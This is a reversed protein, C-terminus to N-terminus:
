IEFGLGTPTFSSRPTGSSHQHELTNAIDRLLRNREATEVASARNCPITADHISAECQCPRGPHCARGVNIKFLVNVTAVHSSALARLVRVSKRPTPKPVSSHRCELAVLCATGQPHATSFHRKHQWRSLSTCFVITIVDLKLCQRPPLANVCVSLVQRELPLLLHVPCFFTRKGSCLSPLNRRRSSFNLACCYVTMNDDVHGELLQVKM